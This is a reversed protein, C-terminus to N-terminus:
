SHDTFFREIIRNKQKRMRSKIKGFASQWSAAFHHVCRTEEEVVNRGTFGNYATFYAQPYLVVDNSSEINESPSLSCSERLIDALIHTNPRMNYTGDSLLFHSTKYYKLWRELVPHRPSFAMFGTGISGEEVSETGLVADRGELLGNMSRVIEVDTDLYIGGYMWLAYVRAVDSVFAYKKASYAEEAFSFQSVPFNEEDWRMVQHDPFFKQWTKMYQRHKKPIASKGFWCYHIYKTIM